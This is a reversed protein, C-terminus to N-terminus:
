DRLVEKACLYGGIIAAAFGGGPTGWASAFYLNKVPSKNPFRFRGSQKPTQAFGYVSGGPNLTYRKLTKPTAVEYLEIERSIGPIIKELRAFFIKAVEDKKKKYQADSLNEWNDISDIACIAGVPKGLGSDIQSYDVFSFGKKEFEGKLNEGLEKISDLLPDFVFTSYYKNGLEKPSKKFGMHITILSPSAKLKSIKKELPIRTRKPLMLSINPVAANAIITKASATMIQSGNTKKYVVGTAANDKTIIGTTIHGLLVKGGNEKIVGTLYDSLNQSGGKIYYSGSEFMTAQAVAYYVLSTQYPDNHYYGINACLILKLEEDDIISDLFEGLSKKSKFTLEPYLIPFLPLSVYLKKGSPLKTIEKQIALIISFFKDIGEKEHPFRKTLVKIAKKTDDPITIEFRGNTFHYFEPLKIFELNEKIKLADAIEKEAKTAEFSSTEHLGADFVYDKRKFNTAYGGPITHQEILLVKKGEKALKAGASLGGLGAGIIIADYDLM